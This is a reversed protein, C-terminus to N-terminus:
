EPEPQEHGAQDSVGDGPLAPRPREVVTLRVGRQPVESRSMEDRGEELAAMTLDVVEDLVWERGPDRAVWSPVGVENLSGEYALLAEALCRDVPGWRRHRVM